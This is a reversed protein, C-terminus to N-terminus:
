SNKHPFIQLIRSLWLGKLGNWTPQMAQAEQYAAVAEAYRKDLRLGWAEGLKCSHIVSDLFARTEADDVFPIQRRRVEAVAPLRRWGRATIGGATKRYRHGVVDLFAFTSGTRALKLWMDLDDGNGLSEDFGGAELFVERRAIVSSTGVFNAHILARHLNPGQFIAVPPADPNGAMPQLHERFSQYDDLMREQLVAGQEDIVMFDTSCLDVNPHADFVAMQAGLKGPEMLDDSDFLAIFEGRAAQIGINRPRSPGGSNPIRECRVMGDHRAVLDAVVRPTDDTSGDDVVIVELGEFGQSVITDITDPLTSAANWTPIVVSLRISSM